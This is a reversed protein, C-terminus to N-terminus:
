GTVPRQFLSIQKTASARNAGVCEQFLNLNCHPCTGIAKEIQRIQNGASATAFSNGAVQHTMGSHKWRSDAMVPGGIFVKPTLAKPIFEGLDKEYGILKSCPSEIQVM